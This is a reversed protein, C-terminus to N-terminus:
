DIRDQREANVFWVVDFEIRGTWDFDRSTLTEMALNGIYRDDFGM